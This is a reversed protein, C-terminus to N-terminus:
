QLSYCNKLYMLTCSFTLADLLHYQKLYQYSFDDIETAIMKYYNLKIFEELFAGYGAGFDIITTNSNIYPSVLEKAKEVILKPTFISGNKIIDQKSLHIVFSSNMDQIM